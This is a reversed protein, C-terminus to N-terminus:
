PRSLRAVAYSPFLASSGHFWAEILYSGTPIPQAIPAAFAGQANTKPAGVLVQATALNITSRSVEHTSDLFVLDFYGSGTSAPSVRATFTLTFRAGPTVPFESSNIAAVQGSSATVHLAQGGTGNPELQALGDGWPGWGDLGQDFRANPVRNPGGPEEYRSEYLRFDAAGSCGCETNVRYGVDASVAGAPVTGTITYEGYAGAGDLPTASLEVLLGALPRGGADTLTGGATDGVQLTLKTRTRFYRNILWTFTGPKTEPLVYDPRDEWSQFVVHDPRIGEMAEYAVFRQEAAATWEADTERGYGGYYILGFPIARTHAANELYHTAQPWDPRNFDLDLHFFPLRKGTVRRYTDMWDVYQQPSVGAVLPEIDGAVLNPFYRRMQSVYAAVDRAVREPSWRCANAGEYLSGFYFPEDFAVYKFTGGARTIGAAVRAADNSGAFGEVGQGCEETAVLAGVEVALEIHRRKLDSVLRRLQSPTMIWMWDSYLKFIRVRSAAKRWPAKPKFLGMYDTSGGWAYNPDGAGVPWNGPLPAFWVLPKPTATPAASSAGAVLALALVALLAARMRM